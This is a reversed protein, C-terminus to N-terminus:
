ILHIVVLLHSKNLWVRKGSINFFFKNLDKMPVGSFIYSWFNCLVFNSDLLVVLLTTLKFYDGNIDTIQVYKAQETKKEETNMEEPPFINEVNRTYCIVFLRSKCRSYIEEVHQGNIDASFHVIIPFESGRLIKESFCYNKAWLCICACLILIM